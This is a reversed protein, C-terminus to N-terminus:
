LGFRIGARSSPALRDACQAVEEGGIRCALVDNVLLRGIRECPLGALDFLRVATRGAGIPALEVAARRAIQGDAGFVVLDLRLTAIAAAGPADNALVMWVRCGEAAGAVTELRNLELPLSPQAAPQAASQARAPPAALWASAM